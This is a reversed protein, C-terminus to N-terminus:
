LLISYFTVIEISETIYALEKKFFLLQKQLLVNITRRIIKAGTHGTHLKIM